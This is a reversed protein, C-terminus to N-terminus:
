QEDDAGGIVTECARVTARETETLEYGDSEMAELLGLKDRAAEDWWCDRAEGSRVVEWVSYAGPRSLSEFGIAVSLPCPASEVKTGTEEEWRSVERAALAKGNLYRSTARMRRADGIREAVWAREAREAGVFAAVFDAREQAERQAEEDVEEGAPEAFTLGYSTVVAVCGEGHGELYEGMGDRDYAFFSRKAVYGEPTEDVLEVGAERAAAVMAAMAEDHERKLKLRDYVRRWDKAPCDRLEAVADDDGEFEAIAYLRDLTMDYAADEVAARARRVGRVKAVDVRATAAVEEDPLDLELMTQVGRSLEEPTLPLKTDTEVMAKAAEQRALEADSLDDYVDAWFRKTGLKRMALWRCEGDIIWYIGGERYLIPRTVPQGPDLRNHEFQRALDDIYARTEESDVDRPNMRQEGQEYPYVDAIDVMETKRM